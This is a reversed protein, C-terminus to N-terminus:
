LSCGQKALYRRFSERQMIEDFDRNNQVADCDFSGRWKKWEELADICARVKEQTAFISARALLALELYRRGEGEVADSSRSIARDLMEMAESRKGVRSIALANAVSARLVHEGTLPDGDGSFEAIVREFAELGEETRGIEYLTLGKNTLAHAFQRRLDEEKSDAARRMVEDYKALAELHHKRRGLRVGEGILAMAVQVKLAVDDSSGFRVVIEEALATAEDIRDLETLRASKNVMCQARLETLLEEDGCRELAQDYAAAAEESRGLRGLNVGKNFLATASTVRMARSEIEETRKLLADYAEIADEIRGLNEHGVAQEFLAFAVAEPDDAFLFEMGRALRVLREWDEEAFAELIQVRFEDATWDREPKDGVERVASSVTQREEASLRAQQGDALKANLRDALAAAATVKVSAEQASKQHVQAGEAASKAADAAKLAQATAEAAEDRLSRVKDKLDAMEQRAASVATRHTFIGFGVVLLTILLGLGAMLNEFQAFAEDQLDSKAELVLNRRDAEVLKDQLAKIDALESSSTIAPALQPNDPRTHTIQAQAALPLILLLWIIRRLGM